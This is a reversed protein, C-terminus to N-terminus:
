NGRREFLRSFVWAIVYCVAQLMFIILAKEVGAAFVASGFILPFWLPNEKKMAFCFALPILICSFLTMAEYPYHLLGFSTNMYATNGCLTIFAFLLLARTRSGKENEFLLEAFMSIVCFVAFLVVYPAVDFLMQSPTLAFFRCLCAYFVPLNELQQKWNGQVPAVGGTFADWGSLAGTDLITVVKEATDHGPELLFPHLLYVGAVLVFALVAIGEEKGPKRLLGKLMRLMGTRVKKWILLMMLCLLFFIVTLILVAKSFSNLSMGFRVGFFSTVGFLLSCLLVGALYVPVFRYEEKKKKLCGLFLAGPVLPYALVVCILLFCKVIVM